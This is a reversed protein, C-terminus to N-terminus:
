ACRINFKIANTITYTSIGTASCDLAYNNRGSPKESQPNSDRQPCPHKARTNMHKTRRHLYLGKSHTPWEDLPTRGHTDLRTHNIFRLVSSSLAWIPSYHWVFFDYLYHVQPPPTPFQMTLLQTAKLQEEGRATLHFLRSMTSILFAYLINILFVQLSSTVQLGPCIHSYLILISRISNPKLVDSPNMHSLIPIPQANNHFNYHVKPNWSYRLIEQSQQACQIRLFSQKM